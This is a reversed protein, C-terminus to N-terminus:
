RIYTDPTVIPYVEVQPNEIELPIRWTFSLQTTAGPGIDRILTENAAIANGKDDNLLVRVPVNKFNARTTNQLYVTLQTINNKEREYLYDEVRFFSNKYIEDVRIWPRSLNSVDFSIRSLANGTGAFSIPINQMIIPFAQGTPLSSTGYFTHILSGAKDYLSFSYDLISGEINKDANPNQVFAVLDYLNEESEIFRTFRIELPLVKDNCVMACSGGCDIGDEDGNQEQDFCNPAPNIYPYLKFVLFALLLFSGIFIFISKRRTRWTGQM